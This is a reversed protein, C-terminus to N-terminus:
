PRPLCAFVPYGITSAPIRSSHCVPKMCLRTRMTTALKKVLCQRNLQRSPSAAKPNDPRRRGPRLRRCNATPLRIQHAIMLKVEPDEIRDSLTLLKIFRAAVGPPPHGLRWVSLYRARRPFRRLIYQCFGANAPLCSDSAWRQDYFPERPLASAASNFSM